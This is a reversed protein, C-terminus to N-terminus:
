GGAKTEAAPLVFPTSTMMFTGTAIAIPADRSDQYAIGRAFVIEHTVKLCEAEVFVDAHPRAAKMYDIRLDLTAYPRHERLATGVSMGCAHDLLGTIVGGHLIGTDPDGVLHEAWPLRMKSRGGAVEIVEAGIGAIYATQGMRSAIAAFSEPPTTQSMVPVM